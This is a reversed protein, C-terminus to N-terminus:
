IQIAVDLRQIENYFVEEATQFGLCSPGTVGRDLM